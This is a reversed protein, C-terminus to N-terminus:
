LRVSLAKDSRVLAIESDRLSAQVRCRLRPRVDPKQGINAALGQRAGFGTPEHQPATDKWAFAKPALPDDLSTGENAGAASSRGVHSGFPRRLADEQVTAHREAVRHRSTTTWRCFLFGRSCRWSSQAM